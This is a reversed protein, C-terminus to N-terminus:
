KSSEELLASLFGVLLREVELDSPGERKESDELVEGKLLRLKVSM